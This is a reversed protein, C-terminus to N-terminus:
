LILSQAWNLVGFVLAGIVYSGASQFTLAVDAIAVVDFFYGVFWLVVINILVYFIGGTALVLPLSVLKLLPKVTMNILTLLLGALILFKLGGTYSIGAVLDALLYLAAGNVVTGLFPKFLLHTM